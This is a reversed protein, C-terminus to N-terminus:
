KRMRKVSAEVDIKLYSKKNGQNRYSKFEAVSSTIVVPTVENNELDHLYVHPSGLLHHTLQWQEDTLYETNLRWRPTVENSVVDRGHALTINSVGRRIETRNYSDTRLTTGRILLHDYGGHANLYYLCYEACTNKVIYSKAIEDEDDMIDVKAGEPLDKLELSFTVCPSPTATAIENWSTGDYWEAKVAGADGDSIKAMTCLLRQRPDVVNSLPKSICQSASKIDIERYSWDNFFTFTSGSAAKPTTTVTRKYNPQSHVMGKNDFNIKSSLYDKAIRNLYLRSYNTNPDKNIKGKYIIEGDAEVSFSTNETLSVFTVQSDKWIPTAM